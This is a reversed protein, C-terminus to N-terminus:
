RGALTGVPIPEEAAVPIAFRSTALLRGAGSADLPRALLFGQFRDFDMSRVRDLQEPREIGEAVVTLRLSHGLAVIAEAVRADEETRGMVAVLPRAIKIVDVPFRGLYRLSSLGVGFGDIAISVGLAKLDRLRSAIMPDEAMVQVESFELTLHAPLLASDRLVGAVDQVFDPERLQRTSVNVSVGAPYPADRNWKRAQHCAERLVWRGIPVILGSGEALPIFASPDIPGRLPHAWRLLAEFGVVRGTRLDSMPQYRISLDGRSVAGTLDDRLVQRDTLEAEMQADFVAFRGKGRTKATYMAVDADHLLEEATQSRGRGAAIGVSATTTVVRGEITMPRGVSEIIREAIRVVGGIDQGDEILVAFEDGSLRAALDSPRVSADIADAVSRLVQDGTAHGHTDNVGKFDDLDIFLVVPLDGRRQRRVLSAALREEFLARNPLGTLSDHLAQHRLQDKLRSVDSLSRGLRGNELAVGAHDAITQFLRLEDVRFSGLAGMRNAMVLTGLLSREGMLPVVMADRIPADNIRDSRAQGRPLRPSLFATSESIARLRLADREGDLRTTTLTEVEDTPGLITRLAHEHDEGTFLVCEAYEARFTSRAETLLSVLAGELEGTGRLIRTTGYLLELSERQGQEAVYARYSRWAVGGLLAPIAMLWAATPAVWLMTIGILALTTNTAAVALGFRVAQPIRKRDSRGQALWIALNVALLGIATSALTAVLAGVWILPQLPTAPGANLGVLLHFLAVSVASGLLFLAMNFGLKLATPRRHILLGIGSGLVHALVVDHPAALFFGLVLPLESLSFSHAERQFQLHVVRVEVLYFLITLLWLPLTVPAVLAARGYIVMTTAAIGILLMACTLLWVRQAGRLGSLQSAVIRRLLPSHSIDPAHLRATVQTADM